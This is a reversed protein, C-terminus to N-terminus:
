GLATLNSLALSVVLGAFCLAVLIPLDFGKMTLFVRKPDTLLPTWFDVKGKQFLAMQFGGKFLGTAGSCVPAVLLTLILKCTM